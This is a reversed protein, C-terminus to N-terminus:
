APRRHHRRQHPRKVPYHHPGTSAPIPLAPKVQLLLNKHYIMVFEGAVPYVAVPKGLAKEFNKVTIVTRAQPVGPLPDPSAIVFTADHASPYYWKWNTEWDDASLGFYRRSVARVMISNHSVLTVASADWYPGIGYKLHHAKLWAVLPVQYPTAPPQTAAATMPVLALAAAASIAVWAWRGALRARVLGRAALVAGAPVVLVVERPNSPVPLTSFLYAGINLVIAICLLQEARSARPWTVVVRGFGYLAVAIALWGLGGGVPGLPSFPGPLAGFMLRIAQFTLHFNSDLASSPAIQTHPAVELYGGANLIGKRLLMEAPVSAIAALLLAADGTRLSRAQIVRFLSILIIAPVTVYLVTADGLQGLILIVGVIPAIFWRTTLRDILLFCLMTIATTGTHDPKEIMIGVNHQLLLPIFLVALVIGTRIAAIMGRSGTRALAIACIIVLAYVVAATVHTDISGLGFIAETIMFVPLEFTYYTADGIIWGHLLLNGHLMDWAQLANNASDSDMAFSYSIRLLLLSLAIGGAVAALAILWRRRLRHPQHAAAADGPQEAAPHEHESRLDGSYRGSVQM